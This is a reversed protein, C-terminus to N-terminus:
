KHLIPSVRKYVLLTVISVILGKILNFPIFCFVILTNLNHISPNIAKASAVVAPIPFKLVKEYLPLFIFYNGLSAVICMAVIGLLLGIVAQRKTKGNRYIMGATFVFASGILFDALEGIGATENKMILHLLNKLLEILVGALPGMSFSGLLAPVDSLDIKLFSPFIPLPFEILYLIFAMASLISIKTLISLKKNTM